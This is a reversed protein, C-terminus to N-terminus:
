KESDGLYINEPGSVNIATVDVNPSTSIASTTPETTTNTPATSTEEPITPSPFEVIIDTIYKQILTADKVSVKKDFDVDAAICQQEDLVILKATHKQIATADMVSIKGDNNVDGIKINSSSTTNEIVDLDDRRVFGTIDNYKM